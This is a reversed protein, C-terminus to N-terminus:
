HRSGLHSGAETRTPSGHPGRSTTCPATGRTPGLEALGPLAAPSQHGLVPSLSCPGPGQFPATDGRAPAAGCARRWPMQSQAAHSVGLRQSSDPKSTHDQSSAPPLSLLPAAPAAPPRHSGTPRSQPCRDLLGPSHLEAPQLSLAGDAAARRAPSPPGLGPSRQTPGDRRTSPSRTCGGGVGVLFGSIAQTSFCSKPSCRVAIRCFPLSGAERAQESRRDQM